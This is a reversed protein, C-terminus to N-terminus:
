KLWHVEFEVDFSHTGREEPDIRLSKIDLVRLSKELDGVFANFKEYSSDFSFSIVGSEYKKQNIQGEEVSNGSSSGIEKSSINDISINYQAAVSDIQSVLKVFDMSDPLITDIDKRDETSINNFQSLMENKKNEIQGVMALSDGYQQKEEFLLSVEQWSPYAFAYAIAVALLLYAFTSTNKM